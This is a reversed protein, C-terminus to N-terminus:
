FRAREILRPHDTRKVSAVDMLHRPQHFDVFAASGSKDKHVRVVRVSCITVNGFHGSACFFSFVIGTLTFYTPEAGASRCESRRRPRERALLM